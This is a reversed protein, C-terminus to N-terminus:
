LQFFFRVMEGSADPGTPTSYSGASSGGSWAHGAGHIVWQELVARSGEDRQVTRTYKTGDPSQGQTVTQHLRKSGQSQAIVANANEPNVVLDKDGHFVISPILHPAPMGAGGSRMAALASPLDRAAGCAVGSHVGVGAFIDPYTVGMVAAAAGGASLGAVFVRSAAIPYGDIIQKTLGAILSPEGAGRQQDGPSFWNWCKQPNANAPQEPYAVLFSHQAALENMRTGAAFDDPSQTCGHLMVLLPLDRGVAVPPVYLKYRRTGVEGRFSHLKFAADRASTPSGLDARLSRPSYPKGLPALADTLVRTM